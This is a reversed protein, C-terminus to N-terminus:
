GSRDNASGTVLHLFAGKCLSEGTLTWHLLGVNLARVAFARINHQLVDLAGVAPPPVLVRVAPAAM